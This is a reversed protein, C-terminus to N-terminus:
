VLLFPFDEIPVQHSAAFDTTEVTESGASQPEIAEELNESETNAAPDPQKGALSSPM